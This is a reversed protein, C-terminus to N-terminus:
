TENSIGKRGSMLYTFGSGGALMLGSLLTLLRMIAASIVVSQSDAVFSLLLFLIGERVGLGGPAFFAFVGVLGAMYYAGTVIPYLDFGMPSFVRLLLFLALGHLMGSLIYGFIVALITKTSPFVDLSEKGILKLLGNISKKLIAPQLLFNDHAVGHYRNMYALCILLFSIVVSAVSLDSLDSQTSGSLTKYAFLSVAVPVLFLLFVSVYRNTLM